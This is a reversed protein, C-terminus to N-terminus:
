KLEQGNVKLIKTNGTEIDVEVDFEVEYLAYKFNDPVEDYRDYDGGLFEEIYTDVTSEKSSHLYM